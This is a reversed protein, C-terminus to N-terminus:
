FKLQGDAPQRPISFFSGGRRQMTLSRTCVYDGCVSLEHLYLMTKKRDKERKRQRSIHMCGSGELREKHYASTERTALCIMLVHLCGVERETWVRSPSPVHEPVRFRSFITRAKEQCGSTYTCEVSSVAQPHLFGEHRFTFAEGVEYFRTRRVSRM